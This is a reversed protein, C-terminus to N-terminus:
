KRKPETVGDEGVASSGASMDGATADESVEAAKRKAAIPPTSAAAPAPKQASSTASAENNRRVIRLMVDAEGLRADIVALRKRLKERRDTRLEGLTSNMFADLADEEEEEAKARARQKEKTEEAVVQMSVRAREAKLLGTKGM